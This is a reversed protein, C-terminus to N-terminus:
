FDEASNVAHQEDEGFLRRMEAVLGGDLKREHRLIISKVFTKVDGDGLIWAVQNNSKCINLIETAQELSFDDINSLEVVVAHTRSFSESQALKRICLDKEVDSALKISPFNERFFSSIQKFFYIDSSKKSLWERALFEKMREKNISSCYDKDGSVFYLSELGPVEALLIEWNIADGLSGNKGPPNGMEIRLRAASIHSAEVQIVKGRQILDAIIIDAKLSRGSADASVSRLLNSHLREFKKQLIRMEDYESYEKCIQPISLKLDVKGFLNLADAIKDERNREFENVVQQPVFLVIDGSDSLAVLKKLEELDEGTLHYFSLFVNTDIFVNM